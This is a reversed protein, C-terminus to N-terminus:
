VLIEVTFNNTQGSFLIGIVPKEQFLSTTQIWYPNLGSTLNQVMGCHSM